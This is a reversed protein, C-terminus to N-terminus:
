RPNEQKGYFNGTPYISGPSRKAATQEGPHQHGRKHCCRGTTVTCGQGECWRPPTRHESGGIVVARPLPLAEECPPRTHGHEQSQCILCLHFHGRQKQASTGLCPSTMERSHFHARELPLAELGPESLSPTTPVLPMFSFWKRRTKFWPSTPPHKNRPMVSGPSVSVPLFSEGKILFVPLTGLFTSRSSSTVFGTPSQVFHLSDSGFRTSSGFGLPTQASRRKM